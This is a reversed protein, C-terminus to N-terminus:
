QKNTLEKLKENDNALYYLKIKQSFLESSNPYKKLGEDLIKIANKIGNEEFYFESLDIYDSITIAKTKKLLNYQLLAEKENGQIKYLNYLIYKYMIGNKDLKNKKELQFKASKVDKLKLYNKILLEQVFALNQVPYSSKLVDELNIISQAYKGLIYNLKASEIYYNPNEDKKISEQIYKLAENYQANMSCIQALLYSVESSDPNLLGAKRTWVIANELDGLQILSYVYGFYAEYFEDDISILNEFHMKANEFDSIELYYNGLAFLLEKNNPNIKLAKQLIPEIKEKEYTLEFIKAQNIHNQINNPNLFFIEDVQKQASTLDNTKFALDILFQKMSINTSDLELYKEMHSKAGILDGEYYKEIANFYCVEKTTEPLTLVGLMAALNTDIIQNNYLAAIEIYEKAKEKNGKTYEIKAKTFYALASKPNIKLMLDAYYQAQSYKGSEFYGVAIDFYDELVTNKEIDFFIKEINRKQLMIEYAKKFTQRSLEEDDKRTKQYTKALWYYGNEDNPNNKLYSKFYDQAINYNNKRYLAIGDNINWLLSANSNLMLLCFSFIVTKAFKKM